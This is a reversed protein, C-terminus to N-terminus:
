GTADVKSDTKCDTPENTTEEIVQDVVRGPSSTATGKKVRRLIEAKTSEKVRVFIYTRNEKKRPM